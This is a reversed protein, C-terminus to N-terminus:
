GFENERVGEMPDGMNVDVSTLYNLLFDAAEEIKCQLTLNLGEATKWTIYLQHAMKIGQDDAFKSAKSNRFMRAKRSSRFFM